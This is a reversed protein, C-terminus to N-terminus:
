RRHQRYLTYFASSWQFHQPAQVCDAEDESAAVGEKEIGELASPPEAGDEVDLEYRHLARCTSVLLHKKIASLRTWLTSAAYRESLHQLYSAVLSGDVNNSLAKVHSEFWAVSDGWWKSNRNTHFFSLNQM